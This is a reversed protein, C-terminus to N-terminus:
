QNLGKFISSGDKTKLKQNQFAEFQIDQEYAIIDESPEKQGLGAREEVERNLFNDKRLASLEDYLGEM